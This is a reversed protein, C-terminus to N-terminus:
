THVIVIETDNEAVVILFLFVVMSRGKLCCTLVHVVSLVFGFPVHEDPRWHPGPVSFRVGEVQMYGMETEFIFSSSQQFNEPVWM